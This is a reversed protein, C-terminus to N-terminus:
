RYEFTHISNKGLIRMLFKWLINNLLKRQFIQKARVEQQGLHLTISNKMRDLFYYLFENSVKNKPIAKCVRQNLLAPTDYNYYSIRGVWSLPNPKNM